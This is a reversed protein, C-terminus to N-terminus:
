MGLAVGIICAAVIVARRLMASSLMLNRNPLIRQRDASLCRDPRAYPFLSRDLWYGVVGATAVLTLKYLTLPLQQPALVYLALFLAAILLKWGALRPLM